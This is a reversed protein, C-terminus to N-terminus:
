WRHHTWFKIHMKLYVTVSGWQIHPSASTLPLITPRSCCMWHLRSEPPSCDRTDSYSSAIHCPSMYNLSFYGFIGWLTLRHTQAELLWTLKKRQIWAPAELACPFFAGWQKRQEKSQEGLCALHHRSITEVQTTIKCTKDSSKTNSPVLNKFPVM